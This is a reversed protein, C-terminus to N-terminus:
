TSAQWTGGLRIALPVFAPPDGTAHVALFTPTPRDGKSDFAIPGTTGATISVAHLAANLSKSDTKGGNNKLAQALAMMGDYEYSSYDGPSTGYKKQYEKTFADNQANHIFESTPL